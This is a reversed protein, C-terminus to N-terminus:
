DFHSDEGFLPSCLFYKFVGGLCFTDSELDPQHSGSFGGWPLGFLYGPSFTLSKTPYM